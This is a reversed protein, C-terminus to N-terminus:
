KLKEMILKNVIEPNAKGKSIKMVQGVIGKLIRPKRGEDAAKYDEVMKQNNALVEDVMKEIESTDSLQVLGKEKVIIEPDRTDDLAIEFVEKAIKSSITNKDILKIIKALNESSITFKDIDINKHKLVRLVETLIWNSSLKANNSYKVVEEFYDSLEVEETLILADKEDLLHNTKFRESTWVKKTGDNLFLYDKAEGTLHGGKIVVSKCGVEDIIFKGARNVDDETVIKFDVIEEAEPVNPTIITALPLIEEKLHKRAVDDILKDGSTAVMVPDVVYPVDKSLYKKVLKMMDANAIMGTKISDPKIDDFVSKLQAELIDLDLNRIMQVGLTNQAVVSTVVAMGYVERAQFSKLDAMIGAGGTPDTGAITLAINLKTM